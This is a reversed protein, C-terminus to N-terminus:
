PWGSFRHCGGCGINIEGVVRRGILEKEPCDEVVGAFEHGPIGSFGMYGKLIEIDTNCIGAYRVRILAENASPTPVPYDDHYSLGDKFVLARM